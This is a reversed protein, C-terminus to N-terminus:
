RRIDFSSFAGSSLGEDVQRAEIYEGMMAEVERVFRSVEEETGEAVLRVRGDPLNQVFGVVNFRAALRLATYRFGVGQVRGEFYVDWRVALASPEGRQM